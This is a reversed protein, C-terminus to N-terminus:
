GMFNMTSMSFCLLVDARGEVEDIFTANTPCRWSGAEKVGHSEINENFLL